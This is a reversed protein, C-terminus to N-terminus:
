DPRIVGDEVRIRLPRRGGSGVLPEPDTTTAVVQAGLDAVRDILRRTRGADLESSLDDLLFLPVLGRRKAALLEALKMSLILTRVQGQSAFRRAPRGELTIVIEDLQVGTLTRKRRRETSRAQVLADHLAMSRAQVDDGVAVTRHRLGVAVESGALDRVTQVVFDVLEDLLEARRHALRGGLTALQEDLTDLLTGDVRDARLTAGKNALVRQHNRVLDLHSPRATFAARDVWRRRHEPGERVIATDSPQFAIARLGSFWESLEACRKGDLHLQRTGNAMRLRRIVTIGDHVTTGGLEIADADWHVLESVRHTRLPKLAALVWIAELTNTKGQANAGHLVTLSPDLPIEFPALNRFGTGSLRDLRM